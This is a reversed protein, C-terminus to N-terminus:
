WNIKNNSKNDVTNSKLGDFNNTKARGGGSINLEEEADYRIPIDERFDTANEGLEPAGFYTVLNLATNLFNISRIKYMMDLFDYISLIVSSDDILILIGVDGQEERVLAQLSVIKKNIKISVFSEKKFCSHIHTGSSDVTILDIDESEYAEILGILNSCKRIFKNRSVETMMLLEKYNNDNNSLSFQIFSNLNLNMNLSIQKNQNYVYEQHYSTLQDNFGKNYLKTKFKVSLGNRKLIDLSLTKVDKKRASIVFAM